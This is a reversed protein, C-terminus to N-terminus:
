IGTDPSTKKASASNEAKAPKKTNEPQAASSSGAPKTTASQGPKEPTASPQEPTVAAAPKYAKAFVVPTLGDLKAVITGDPGVTYKEISWNGAVARTYPGTYQMVYVETGPEFQAPNLKFTVDVLGDVPTEAGDVLAYYNGGATYFAFDAPVDFGAAALVASLKEPTNVQDAVDTSLASAQISAEQGDVSATGAPVTSAPTTVDSPTSSGDAAMIPAAGLFMSAALIASFFKKKSM